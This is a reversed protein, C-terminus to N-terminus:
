GRSRRPTPRPQHGPLGPDAAPATRHRAAAAPRLHAGPRPPSLNPSLRIASLTAPISGHRQVDACRPPQLLYSLFKWVADATRRTRPSAWQWSGMGSSPQAGSARCRVIQLDHPFAPPLPRVGLAGGLLNVAQGRLFGDNMDPNVLGDHFLEACTLSQVSAPSNLVGQATRYTSRNILDGGASWVIPSFGYGVV